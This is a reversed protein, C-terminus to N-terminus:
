IWLSIIAVYVRWGAKALCAEFWCVRTVKILTKPKPHLSGQAWARMVTKLTISREVNSIKM